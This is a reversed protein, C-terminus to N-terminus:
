VARVLAAVRAAADLVAHARLAARMADRRAPDDALHEIFAAVRAPTLDREPSWEVGGWGALARANATQHDDTAHPYPILLAPLGFAALEMCSAAGARAVAFDAWAYARPMDALFPHVEAELGAAAYVAAVRAADRAGALHLIALPRRPRLDLAAQQVATNIAVAGQSGGMVLLRLPRAADFAVAPSVARAAAAAVVDARLPQGTAIVRRARLRRGAEPFTVAVARALPALLRVAQGPVANADHLILPIGLWRAALAPGVCTYSGMALMADPRDARLGRLAGRFGTVAGALARAKRVPWVGGVPPLPTRAMGGPWGALAATEVARGTLWLTVRDGLGILAEGVARGPILHGGTGGCVVAIHM